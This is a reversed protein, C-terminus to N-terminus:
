IRSAAPQWLAALTVLGISRVVAQRQQADFAPRKGGIREVGGAVGEGISIARALPQQRELAAVDCGILIVM